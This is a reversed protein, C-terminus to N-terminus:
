ASRAHFGKGEEEVDGPPTDHDDATALLRRLLRPQHGLGLGLHDQDGGHQLILQGGADGGAGPM